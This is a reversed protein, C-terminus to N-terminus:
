ACTMGRNEAAARGVAATPPITAGAARDQCPTPLRNCGPRWQPWVMGHQHDVINGYAHGAPEQDLPRRGLNWGAGPDAEDTAVAGALARQKAGNDAVEREFLAAKGPGGAGGDAPQRLFRGVPRFPQDLDHEGAVVLAAEEDGFRFGGGVGM